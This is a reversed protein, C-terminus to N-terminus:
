LWIDTPKSPLNDVWPNGGKIADIKEWTWTIASDESPFWVFILLPSVTCNHLPSLIEKNVSDNFPM